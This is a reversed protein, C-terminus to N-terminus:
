CYGRAAGFKPTRRIAAHLRGYDVTDATEAANAETEERSEAEFLKVLSPHLPAPGAPQQQKPFMSNAILAMGAGQKTEYLAGLMSLGRGLDGGLQWGFGDFSCGCLSVPGGSYDFLVNTFRCSEFENGDLQM